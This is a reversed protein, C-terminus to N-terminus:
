KTLHCKQLLEWAFQLDTGRYYMGGEEVIFVSVSDKWMVDMRLVVNVYENRSFIYLM